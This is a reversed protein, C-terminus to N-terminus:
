CMLQECVIVSISQVELWEIVADDVNRCKGDQSCNTFYCVTLSLSPNRLLFPALMSHRFCTCAHRCRTCPYRGPLLACDLADCSDLEVTSISSTLPWSKTRAARVFCEYIDNRLLYPGNRTGLLEGYYNQDKKRHSGRFCSRLHPLISVIIPSLLVLEERDVQKSLPLSAVQMRAETLLHNFTLCSYFLAKFFILSVLVFCVHPQYPSKFLFLVLRGSEIMLRMLDLHARINAACANYVTEIANLCHM